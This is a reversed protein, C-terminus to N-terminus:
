IRQSHITYFGEWEASQFSCPLYSDSLIKVTVRDNKSQIPFRFTGDSINVDEITTSPSNIVNGSFEYTNTSRAEPTVEVKFFGSDEYNVRMTRLQLRGSQVSQKGQNERVHQESFQYEFTYPIGITVTAASYDGTAAVTSTTPRTVTIDTGKRSSWAGSKIAKVTGDYVYPLTWTTINTGSNYSGSVTVKRDVRSCFTLGSDNPYQLQLKEIFVGDSRSIVIFLDNELITVDLVSSGTHMHWESWSSVLKTTGQWYWKYIYLKSRDESSLGVLIDENSSSALKVVNKPLYKPCHSTIEAADVIVTDSEVYYERVSTFDGRKSTFYLYNGSAVPSVKTDNEFETSPVISITKPTLIGSTEISFQTNDSFLTLSDNFPIAHKLISVKTHSVSVDIPADDLVATVTTAFFNFFESSQSFIINEDALLGLRNKYFFINNINRGVFSPNPNSDLDGADRDAYTQRDFTFSGSTLVLSHPMTTNDLQYIIGPKVTEEYTNASLAKVFYNDFNNNQDGLIEYVNGTSANTPLDAFEQVSSSVSGSVTATTMAVTKTKNVIFTFDAVTVFALDTQPNACHLYATGNPVNVTASNGALDFAQITASSSTATIAIIYQNAEDRNVVHIAAGSVASNIIKAVHETPQRKILGDIISSFGNVQSEGQTTQRLTSPQQSVGNLLNPLGTSVLPM